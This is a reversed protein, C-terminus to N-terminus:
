VPKRLLVRHGLTMADWTPWIWALTWALINFIPVLVIVVPLRWAMGAGRRQLPGALSLCTLVAAAHLPHSVADIREIKLGASAASRAWGHRTWRQYDHPADHVPYLFPMTLEAVGGSMLVRSIEAIVREPERVHELVEYCVVADMSADRFPLRSADGFVDPRTGYLGIATVPYDFALYSVSAKLERQVWRDAAGIDLVLGRCNRIQEDVKRQPMLWQPHLPTRAWRRAYNRLGKTVSVPRDANM